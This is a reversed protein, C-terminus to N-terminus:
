QQMALFALIQERDKVAATSGTATVCVAAAATGFRCCQYFDEGHLLASIFGAAFNDGAGTSDLAKVPFAPLTFCDERSRCLCGAPGTKIVVHGVGMELLAAAMDPYSDRGTYYAAENEHPFIYDIYPLAERVDALTLQRFSPMKTDACIIAGQDKAQRVLALLRQPDDLPARFLSALSLVRYGSLGSLAPSFFPLRAAPSSISQREGGPEVLLNAVPTAGEPSRVVGGTSLGNAEMASLILDGATDGGIGCILHVPHGLRTLIVSENFADGGVSLSIAQARYVNKQVPTRDWGLTICDVIAQGLCVVQPQQIM